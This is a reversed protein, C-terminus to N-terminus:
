VQVAVADPWMGSSVLTRSSRILRWGLESLHGSGADCRRLDLALGVLEFGRPPMPIADSPSQPTLPSSLAAVSRRRSALPGAGTNYDPRFAPCITSSDPRPARNCDLRFALGGSPPSMIPGPPGIAQCVQLSSQTSHTRVALRGSPWGAELPSITSGSPEVAPLQTCM